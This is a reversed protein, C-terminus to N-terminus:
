PHFAMGESVQRRFIENMIKEARDVFTEESVYLPDHGTIEQIIEPWRADFEKAGEAGLLSEARKRLFLRMERTVYSIGTAM